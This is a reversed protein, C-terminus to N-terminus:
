EENIYLDNISLLKDAFIMAVAAGDDSNAQMHLHPENSNGSNGVQALTQGEIVRQGQKVMLSDPRLHALWINVGKCRIIIHNGGSAAKNIAPPINDAVGDKIKDIKGNCPSRLLDGYIHYHTLRTPFLTKARNGWPNLKAIDVAWESGSVNRHFPNTLMSDGGQLVYYTGASLPFGLEVRKNTSSREALSFGNGLAFPLALLAIVIMKVYENRELSWTLHRRRIYSYIGSALFLMLVIFRLYYSSFAWAGILFSLLCINAVLFLRVAWTSRSNDRGIALWVLSVLPLLVTLSGLILIAM